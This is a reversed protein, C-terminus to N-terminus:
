SVVRMAEVVREIEITRPANVSTVEYTVGLATIRDKETIDQGAPLYILWRNLVELRQEEIVEREVEIVPTIRGLVTALNSWTDTQGGMGDSVSAKRQIVCSTTRLGSLATQMTALDTASIM